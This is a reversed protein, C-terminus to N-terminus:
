GEGSGALVAVVADMGASRSGKILVTDGATLFAKLASSLADRDAFSRAGPGFAEVAADTHAGSAWLCDIGREAAYRGVEAHLTEAQPGLEAMTGLVLIRRGRSVALVDIAAKVSAPNANYSDDILTTGGAIERRHLRGGSSKVAALGAGIASLSLGAAYAAAAAALANTVNHHGPVDLTVQESEGAIHLVFQVSNEGLAIDSAYVDAHSGFGFELQRARGALQRWLDAFESDALFIATGEGGLSSLIEGKTRAISAVSGMTELHAPM